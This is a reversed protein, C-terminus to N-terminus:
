RFESLPQLAQVHLADIGGVARHDLVRLGLERLVDLMAQIALALDELRQAVAQAVMGVITSRM